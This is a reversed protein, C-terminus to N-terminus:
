EVDIIQPHPRVGMVAAPDMPIEEGGEIVGVEEPAMEIVTEGAVGGPAGAMDFLSGVRGHGRDTRQWKGGYASYTREDCNQCVACGSLCVALVLLYRGIGLARQAM